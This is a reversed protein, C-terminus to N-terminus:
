KILNNKVAWKIVPHINNFISKDVMTKKRSEVTRSSIDLIKGIELATLGDSIYQLVEIEKETLEIM